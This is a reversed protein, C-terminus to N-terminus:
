IRIVKPWNFKFVSGKDIAPVYELTGGVMKLIRNSVTLGAGTTDVVDKSNVTYFIAFIKDQVEEPIGPGDDSISILYDTENESVEIIVNKMEKDHFRIANDLLSFVVKELKKGLTICKEEKLHYTMHFEVNSKNDLMEVCDNILKPINVEYLEMNTRSVRSIELLANMMNELRGVRNKLLSFNDLIDQDVNSGLDDEIWTTINIIARMPTKIDHSVIYVFEEYEKKLAELEEECNNVSEKM